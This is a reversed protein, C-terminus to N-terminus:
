RVLTGEGRFTAQLAAICSCGERNLAAMVSKPPVSKGCQQTRGEVCNRQNHPLTM